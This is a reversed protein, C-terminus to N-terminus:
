KRKIARAKGNGLLGAAVGGAFILLASNLQDTSAINGGGVLCVTLKVIIISVSLILGSFIASCKNKRAAYLGGCFTCILLSINGLVRGQDAEITENLILMSLVSILAFLAIMTIITGFFMVILTSKRKKENKKVM